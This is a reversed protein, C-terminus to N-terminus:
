DSRIIESCALEQFEFRGHLIGISESLIFVTIYWEVFSSSRAPPCFPCRPCADESFCSLRPSFIGCSIWLLRLSIMFSRLYVSMTHWFGSQPNLYVNGVFEGFRNYRMNRNVIQGSHRVGRVNSPLTSAIHQESHWKGSVTM